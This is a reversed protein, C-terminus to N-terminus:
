LRDDFENDKIIGDILEIVEDFPHVNHEFFAAANGDNDDLRNGISIQEQKMRLLFSKLREM